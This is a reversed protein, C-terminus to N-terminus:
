WLAFGTDRQRFLACIAATRVLWARSLVVRAQIRVVRVIFLKPRPMIANKRGQPHLGLRRSRNMQVFPGDQNTFREDHDANDDRDKDSQSM